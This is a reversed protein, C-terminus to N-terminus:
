SLAPGDFVAHEAFILHPRHHLIPLRREDSRNIHTLAAIDV